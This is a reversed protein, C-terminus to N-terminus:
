SKNVEALVVCGDFDELGTIVWEEGAPFVRVGPRCLAARLSCGRGVPFRVVGPAGAFTHLVALAQGGGRRVVCQWGEPHRWSVSGGYVESVGDRIVGAAARYLDATKLVLARTKEDMGIVDGSLCLRGLFGATLRYLAQMEDMGKRLVAWIQSQRPLFLRQSAAAILPIEACEHADSFSCM